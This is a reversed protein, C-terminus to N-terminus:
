VILCRQSGEDNGERGAGRVTLKMGFFLADDKLMVSMALVIDKPQIIGMQQCRLTFIDYKETFDDFTDGSYKESESTYMKAVNAIARSIDPPPAAATLTPQATSRTKQGQIPNAASLEQPPPGSPPIAAPDSPPMGTSTPLSRPPGGDMTATESLRPTPRPTPAPTPPPRDPDDEPWTNGETELSEYLAKAIRLGVRKAVYVGNDRLFSRLDIQYGKDIDTFDQQSFGEFYAQFEDKLSNRKALRGEEKLYGWRTLVFSAYEGKEEKEANVSLGYRYKEKLQEWRSPIITQNNGAM